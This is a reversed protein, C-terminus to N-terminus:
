PGDDVTARRNWPLLALPEPPGDDEVRGVRLGVEVEPDAQTAEVVQIGRGPREGLRQCLGDPLEAQRLRLEAGDDVAHAHVHLALHDRRRLLPEAEIASPHGTGDAEARRADDAM